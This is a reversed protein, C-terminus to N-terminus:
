PCIEIVLFVVTKDNEDSLSDSLEVFLGFDPLSDPHGFLLRGSSEGAEGTRITRLRDTKVSPLLHMPAFSYQQRISQAKGSQHFHRRRIGM